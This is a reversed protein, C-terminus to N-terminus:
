EPLEALVEAMKYLEPDLPRNKGVVEKLPVREINEGRLGVMTGAEGDALAEVAAAGFRSALIRDSATPSGGRQIHGVVTLRSDYTGENNFYEHLEEASLPAGEAVVVVFHSKGQEYAMKLFLLLAEPRPEIEPIVAAEAGGAIASMLALYGCDRGMVEVVHARRHSSATDKIRDIAELATNLATDVGIATDTGWVDNDISAPIGVVKVGIDALKLAGTLSGNGGIVILGDIEAEELRGAAKRQGEPTAFEASRETGLVTGGRHIIGGLRRRDMPYIRGELLGRYGASVAMMEWGKFFATRAVARVAANMGPADGGSTLVAIRM